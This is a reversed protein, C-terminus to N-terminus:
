LHLAARASAFMEKAAAADPRRAPDRATLARVVERLPGPVRPGPDLHEFSGKQRMLQALPAKGDFARLGSLLEYLTQGAGYVDWAAPDTGDEDTLWEPPAYACTGVRVGVDSLRELKPDLALGFDVVTARSDPGVIVNAPKVDRHAVGQSHWSAMADLLQAGVQVGTGISSPGARVLWGAHRGVVLEMEIWPPAADLVVRRIKVIGPHDLRTLIEAERALRRRVHDDHEVSARLLKIAAQRGGDDRCRYVEAVGGTGLRELVEWRGIRKGPQV